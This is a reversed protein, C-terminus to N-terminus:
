QNLEAVGRSQWSPGKANIDELVEGCSGELLQAHGQFGPESLLIKQTLATLLRLHITASPAQLRTAPMAALVSTAFAM